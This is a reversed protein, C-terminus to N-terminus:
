GPHDGRRNGARSLRAPDALECLKQPPGRSSNAFTTSRHRCSFPPTGKRTSWAFGPPLRTSPPRWRHQLYDLFLIFPFGSLLKQRQVLDRALACPPHQDFCEPRLGVIVDFAM